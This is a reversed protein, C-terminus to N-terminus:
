QQEPQQSALTGLKSLLVARWITPLATGSGLGRRGISRWLDNGATQRASRRAHSHRWAGVSPFWEDHIMRNRIDKDRWFGEIGSVLEGTDSASLNLDKVLAIVRDKANRDKLIAIAQLEDGGAIATALRLLENECLAFTIVLNGLARVFPQFHVDVLDPQEPEQDTMM